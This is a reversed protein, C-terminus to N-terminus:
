WRIVCAASCLGAGFASMVINQGRELLGARNVEDLLIPISASSTNGVRDINSHCKEKDIHALKMAMDIIRKNAQHPFIHSIDDTTLGAKEIVFDIDNKMSNVAFQFTEQGMMHTFPTLGKKNYFPSSGEAHPITITVDDGKTVLRSSLYNEGKELVVAGAGDGFIVCTSRDAWDTVRSLKEAGVVLIKKAGREFFGAAIDLMYVFASCAANIDFSPCSAGIRNQIIAATSPSAYDASVSACIILDLETPDTNAMELANKAAAAGMDAVMEDTCVHRTKIGVRKSIWEDNTDVLKSLDDNTITKEPLFSGTGIIKFSM